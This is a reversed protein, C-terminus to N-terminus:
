PGTTGTQAPNTAPAPQSITNASEFTVEPLKAAHAEIAAFYDPLTSKVGWRILFEPIRFGVDFKFENRLRTDGSPLRTMTFIGSSEDATGVLFEYHLRLQNGELQPRFRSIQWKNSIPWPLDLIALVHNEGKPCVSAVGDSGAMQRVVELDDPVAAGIRRTLEPDITRQFMVPDGGLIEAGADFDCMTQVVQSFEATLTGEAWGTVMTTRPIREIDITMENVAIGASPMLVMLVAAGVARSNM